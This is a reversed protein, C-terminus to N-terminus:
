SSGKRCDDAWMRPGPVSPRRHTPGVLLRATGASRLVGEHVYWSGPVTAREGDATVFVAGPVGRSRLLAVVRDVRAGRFGTCHLPEGPADISALMTYREGERGQRGLTIDIKKSYGVPIRLGIACPFDATVCGDITGIADKRRGGEATQEGGRM